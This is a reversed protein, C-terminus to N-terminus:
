VMTASFNRAFRKAYSWYVRLLRINTYGAELAASAAEKIHDPTDFDPEGLSLDIIDHGKSKLERALTAM